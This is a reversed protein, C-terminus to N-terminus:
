PWLEFTKINLKSRAVSKERWAVLKLWNCGLISEPLVNFLTTFVCMRSDAGKDELLSCEKGTSSIACKRNMTNDHVSVSMYYCLQAWTLCLYLVASFLTHHTHATAWEHGARQPGMSQLKDLEETMINGLCSYQLLYSNEGGPSRGSGPILAVHGVSAPLNKVVSGGPFVFICVPSFLIVNFFFFFFTLVVM